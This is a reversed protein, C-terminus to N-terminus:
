KCTTEFIGNVGAYHITKFFIRSFIKKGTTFNIYTQSVFFQLVAAAFDETIKRSILNVSYIKVM